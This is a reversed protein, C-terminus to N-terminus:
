KMKIVMANSLSDIHIIYIKITSHKPLAGSYVSNWVSPVAIEYHPFNWVCSVYNLKRFLLSNGSNVSHVFNGVSNSAPIIRWKYM